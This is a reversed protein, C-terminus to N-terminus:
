RKKGFKYGVSVGAVRHFITPGYDANNLNTLGHQYHVFIVFGSKHQFGLQANASLTVYSYDSFSFVMDRSVRKNNLSDFTESGNIAFDASPGFRFFGYSVGKSFNIQLLPALEISHVTVDNNKANSDPPFAPRNFTVKYGKQNYYLLPSFYVPGEFLTKFSVGANFGTKSDVTQDAGRIIYKATSTQPGGFLTLQAGSHLLSFCFLLLLCPRICSNIM